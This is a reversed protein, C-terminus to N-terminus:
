KEPIAQDPGIPKITSEARFLKYQSYQHRNRFVQDCVETASTSGLAQVREKTTTTVIVKRPLWLSSSVQPLRVEAYEIETTQKKLNIDPRPALLDTRIRLIQYGAADIWAIGQYLILVSKRNRVVTGVVTAWGPRQAFAVAYTQQGGLVQRGLLRFRSSARNGPYFHAWQDAFGRTLSFGEISGQPAILKGQADTRYEDIDVNEGHAGSPHALILFSFSDVRQAVVHGSSDLREETIEEHSSVNPFTELLAEVNAGVKGLIPPLDKQSSAPDLSALEPVAKRLEELTSDVFTRAGDYYHQGATEVLQGLATAAGFSLGLLLIGSALLFGSALIAPERMILM